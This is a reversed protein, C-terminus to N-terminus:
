RGLELLKLDYDHINLANHKINTPDLISEPINYFNIIKQNKTAKQIVKM